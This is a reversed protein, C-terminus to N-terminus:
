EYIADDIEEDLWGVEKSLFKRIVAGAMDNATRDGSYEDHSLEVYNELFYIAM